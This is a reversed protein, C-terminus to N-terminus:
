NGHRHRVIEYFQEMGRTKSTMFDSVMNAVARYDEPTLPADARASDLRGIEAITDVFVELPTLSQGSSDIPAVIQKLVTDLARHPDYSDAGDTLAQLLKLTTSALGPLPEGDERPVDPAAATSIAAMIPAMEADGQLIQFIDSLSALTAQLADADSAESLLYTLLRQLERRAPEHARVEEQLDMIAAFVPGGMSDAFQHAIQKTAWLCAQGPDSAAERDPCRANVHERLASVLTPLARPLLRNRFRASPGSGDVLLFQDVLQSRARKWMARREGLDDYGPTAEFREDMKVLGQAFLDFPTLQPKVTKGDSWFTSAKGFRDTMKAKSARKPDFLSRVLSAAVDVGDRTKGKVRPSEIRQAILRKALEHLAPILDSRYVDVLIPEYAVVGAESCFKPNTKYDGTKNCEPGHAASAWNRHLVDVLEIFLQNSGHKAFAEALPAIAEYFGYHEWLFVTAPDRGRLTDAFSSCKNIGNVKPCSASAAPDILDRLFESTQKNKTDVPITDWDSYKNKANAAEAEFFVLRNLGRTTVKDSMSLGDIGSASKFLDDTFGPFTKSTWSLLKDKDKIEFKARGAMADVYLVGMDDFQFLECERFPAFPWPPYTATILGIKVRLTAGERNCATVGNVDHIAQIFRQFGSRNDPTDSPPYTRKVPVHPLQTDNSELNKPPGNLKDPDYSILDKYETFNALAEGLPLIREDSLAILLDELLGRPSNENPGVEGIQALVDAMEDWITVKKDLKAKAHLPKKPDNANAYTDLAIGVLRAVTDEHNQALDIVWQLYDDSERDGLLQGFAYYLDVFPSSDPDFGRFDLHYPETRKTEVRDGYLVLAGGLADMLTEHENTPNPDVLAILDRALAGTLAKSTDVYRYFLQGSPSLARGFEDTAGARELGPVRFPLNIALPEGDIGVFRGFPDLDALGDGDLDAFPSPVSAAKGPISGEIFAYGRPDRAVIYRPTPRAPGHFDDHESLLLKEIFELNTRPRNPQAREEDVILFPPRPPDVEATRLERETVDLLAQLRPEARGGPGMLALAEQALNRLNPYALAPRIAGLGVQLPRYGVRGSMRSLASRAEESEGIADYLRALSRTVSPVLPLANGNPDAGFPNTEYLPAIGGLLATLADHLRIKKGPAKPDAIEVDPFTADFAAILDARRRAMAEVKAVGLTRAQNDTPPLRKQDVRDAYGGDPGKHCIGRYSAGELDEALSSAGVRDCLIGFLDEGLTTKAEPVARTTDFDTCSALSSAIALAFVSAGRLTRLGMRQRSLVSNEGGISAARKVITM